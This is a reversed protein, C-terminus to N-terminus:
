SHFEYHGRTPHYTLNARMIMIVDVLGTSATLAVADSSTEYQLGNKVNAETYSQVTLARLGVTIKKLFLLWHLYSSM